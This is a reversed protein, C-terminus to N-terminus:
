CQLSISKNLSTFIHSFHTFRTTLPTGDVWKWKGETERDTLGIWLNDKLQRTFNKKYHSVIMLMVTVNFIDSDMWWMLQSVNM